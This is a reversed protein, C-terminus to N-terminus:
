AFATETRVSPAAAAALSIFNGAKRTDINVIVEKQEAHIRPLTSLSIGIEERLARKARLSYWTGLLLIMRPSM